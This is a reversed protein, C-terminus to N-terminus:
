QSYDIPAGPGTPIPNNVPYVADVCNTVPFSKYQVQTPETTLLNAPASTNANPNYGGLVFDTFASTTIPGAAQDLTKDFCFEAANPTVLTVSTLDPRLSSTLPIAGGMAAAASGAGFLPLALVIGGVVWRVFSARRLQSAM